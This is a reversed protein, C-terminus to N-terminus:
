FLHNGKEFDFTDGAQGFDDPLIVCGPQNPANNLNLERGSCIMGNSEVGVLKGPWIIQGSPMMAGVKAVIVKVHDTINPSGCVIQVTEDGLDVKTINLHDSKPHDEIESVYGVVFKPSLDAVLSTTFGAKQIAENLKAVQPETLVIQGRHDQLDDLLQSANNFNYGLLQGKDGLIQTVGNKTVVTQEGTGNEVITVLVDGMGPRNYSAILM